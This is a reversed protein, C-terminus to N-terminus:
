IFTNRSLVPLQTAASAAISAAQVVVGWGFSGGVGDYTIVAGWAVGSPRCTAAIRGRV